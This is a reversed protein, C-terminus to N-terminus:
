IACPQRQESEEFRVISVWSAREVIRNLLDRAVDTNLRNRLTKETAEELIARIRRNADSGEGVRRSVLEV